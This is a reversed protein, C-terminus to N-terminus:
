PITDGPPVWGRPDTGGTVTTSVSLNASAQSTGRLPVGKAWRELQKQVAAIDDALAGEAQGTYSLMRGAALRATAEVVIPPYQGETDLELPVLHAPLMNEILHSAWVISSDIPLETVVVINAGTTAFTIAAGGETASVRFTSDTVPQAYYTVNASLNSPLAGGAEARFIIEEDDDFGHGDLAMLQQGSAVHEILRGPNPLTGRPLGYRHLDAPEAYRSAPM